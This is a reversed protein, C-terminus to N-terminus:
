MSGSLVRRPLQDTAPNAHAGHGASGTNRTSRSHRGRVGEGGIQSRRDPPRRSPNALRCRRKACLWLTATSRMMLEGMDGDLLTPFGTIKLKTFLTHRIDAFVAERLPFGRMSRAIEPEELATRKAVDALLKGRLLARGISSDASAVDSDREM